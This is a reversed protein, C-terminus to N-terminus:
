FLFAILAILAFFSVKTFSSSSEFVDYVCDPADYYLHADVTQYRYKRVSKLASNDNSYCNFRNFSHCKKNTYTNGIEKFYSNWSSTELKFVYYVMILRLASHIDMLM